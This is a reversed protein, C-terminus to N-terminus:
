RRGEDRLDQVTSGDGPTARERLQRLRAIAARARERDIEQEQLDLLTPARRPAGGAAAPWRLAGRGVEGAPPPLGWVPEARRVGPPPSLSGDPAANGLGGNDALIQRGQM